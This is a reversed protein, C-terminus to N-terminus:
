RERRVTRKLSDLKPLKIVTSETETELSDGIIYHTTDTHLRAKCLGRRECKWHTTDGITKHRDYVFGREALKYREINRKSSRILRFEEPIAEAM